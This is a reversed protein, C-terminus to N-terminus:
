GARRVLPTGCPLLTNTPASGAPLFGVVQPPLGGGDSGGSATRSVAPAPHLPPPGAPAPAGDDPAALLCPFAGPDLDAKTQHAKAPRPPRQPQELGAHLAATLASTPM